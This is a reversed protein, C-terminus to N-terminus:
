CPDPTKGAAVTQEAACLLDLLLQTAAKDPVPYGRTLDPDSHIAPRLNPLGICSPCGADCPCERVLQRCLVLLNELLTYGKECYGLGGPYRDYLILSSAGLNRSDVVGSIDRSDCMAIMPLAVVALNRLGCLGESPRYGAQRLGSRVSEDPTLWCATTPLRQAPLDVTGYGVNERTAFRIKKFGVTKWSVDVEGYALLALAPVRRQCTQRTIDVSSDLVAQTYYDMEHREVYAVRGEWDLERVFYSEGNHLYVAEPYVLEPASIADVNAIVHHAAEAEPPHVAAGGGGSQVARQARSDSVQQSSRGAAVVTSGRQARPPQTRLVISFTNDSMHRLSIQQAPNVAGSYYYQGDIHSLQHADCLIEAVAPGSRAFSSVTPEDLPLEFAAAQLHRALVYPNEPDVVAHEPSQAFFYRPHRALYQDVPDNGALLVTLSEGRRRGSRGAQQWTSAITGPYHLLLTVDLSGIDIGLELANTAAVGRLRGAFLDQEIERREHPLYGGRYARMQAALPSGAHRLTQQVFRNVLETAQRTRTFTLTQAGRQMAQAMLWVADDTASGRALADQQSAAPNWLAFYKRGRPSGDDDIVSMPRGTLRAALEGPNAITASAALFVPHAGYHACVRSLRRLVCAVHAGLIGRYTHVEDLVVFKLASFFRSWKPHYPLISAHLMDPNSLVLNAEAKIRRRQATPTDGDYVGPHVGAFADPAAALLELQGKLQDQALAKTPFLYLARAAPDALCAELIPLNYCLTKGSATGSVVVWDRGDRAADLAQAQHVYLQQIGSAALLHRLEDPLPRGPEAYRGAREELHEVHVLQGAYGPQSEIERLFSAVDM